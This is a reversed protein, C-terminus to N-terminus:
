GRYRPVPAGPVPAPALFVAGGEEPRVTNDLTTVILDTLGDGAFCVSSVFNAPVDLVERLAGDPSFWGVGGGGALAVLLSGDAAVALGDFQGSPSTCLPTLAGPRRPDWPGALVIGGPYDVVYVTAGDPSFGIGNPWAIGQHWVSVAGDPARYRLTGPVPAGGGLPSFHLAGALLGGEPTAAIDNFGTVPEGRPLLVAPEGDGLRVVDRGSVIPRGAMDLAAGGIGKREPVLLELTDGDRSLRRLGGGLASSVLLTGDDTLTPAEALAFGTALLRM